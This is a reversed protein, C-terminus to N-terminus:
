LRERLEDALANVDGAGVLLVTDGEHLRMRRFRAISGGVDRM